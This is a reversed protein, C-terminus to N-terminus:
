FGELQRLPFVPGDTCSKLAARRGPVACAWCDAQGSCATHTLVLAESLPPCRIDALATRLSAIHQVPVAVALRDAWALAATLEDLPLIEVEDPLQPPPADSVLTVARRSALSQAMLPLLPHLSSKWALLALNGSQASLSFGRGLPGQVALSTGPRWHSPIEGWVVLSGRDEEALYLTVPLIEAASDAMAHLYQGPTLRLKSAPLRVLRQNQDGRLELITACATKM